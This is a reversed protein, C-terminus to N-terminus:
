SGDLALDQDGPVQEDHRVNEAAVHQKVIIAVVVAPNAISPEEGFGGDIGVTAVGTIVLPTLSAFADKHSLIGNQSM